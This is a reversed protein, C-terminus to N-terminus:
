LSEKASVTEALVALIEVIFSLIQGPTLNQARSPTRSIKRLHTM